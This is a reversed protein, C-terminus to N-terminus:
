PIGDCFQSGGVGPFIIKDAALIVESDDSIVPVIGQRELAIQVSRINGANYKIIVIKM